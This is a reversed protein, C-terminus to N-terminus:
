VIKALWLAPGTCDAPKVEYFVFKTSRGFALSYQALLDKDSEIFFRRCPYHAYKYIKAVGSIINGYMDEFAMRIAIPKGYPYETLFDKQQCLKNDIVIQIRDTDHGPTAPYYVSNAVTIFSIPKLWDYLKNECARESRPYSIPSIMSCYEIREKTKLDLYLCSSHFLSVWDVGFDLKDNFLYHGYGYHFLGFCDKKGRVHDLASRLINKYGLLREFMEMFCLMGYEAIPEEIEACHLHEEKHNDFFAHMLEHAFVIATLDPNYKELTGMFLVIERKGSKGHRTYYGLLETEITVSDRGFNICFDILEKIKKIKGKIREINKALEALAEQDVSNKKRLEELTKELRLLEEEQVKLEKQLSELSIETTKTGRDELYVDVENLIESPIFPAFGKFEGVDELCKLRSSDVPKSYGRDICNFSVM